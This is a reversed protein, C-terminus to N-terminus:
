IGLGYFVKNTQPPNSFVCVMAKMRPLVRQHMHYTSYSPESINPPAELVDVYLCLILGDEEVSSRVMLYSNNVGAPVPCLDPTGSCLGGYLCWGCVNETLVCEACSILPANM